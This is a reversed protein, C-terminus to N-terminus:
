SNPLVDGEFDRRIINTRGIKIMNLHHIQSFTNSQTVTGLMPSWVPELSDITHSAVGCQQVTLISAPVNVFVGLSVAIFCLRFCISGRVFQM